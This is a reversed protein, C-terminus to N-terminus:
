RHVNLTYTLTPHWCLLAMSVNAKAEIATVGDWTVAQYLTPPINKDFRIVRWPSPPTTSVDAVFNGVHNVINQASASISLLSLVVAVSKSYM